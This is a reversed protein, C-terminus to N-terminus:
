TLKVLGIGNMIKNRIDERLSADNLAREIAFYLDTTTLLCFGKRQALEMAGDTYPKEKKDPEMRRYHNVVFIGKLEPQKDVNIDYYDLLERMDDRDAHTKLGKVEIIGTFRGDHIYIDPETGKGSIRVEFGLIRFAEAVAKCLDRDNGYLLKELVNITKLKALIKRKEKYQYKNVWDPKRSIWFELWKTLFSEKNKFQPLCIIEGDGLKISFAIVEEFGTTAIIEVNPIDKVNRFYCEVSINDRQSGLFRELSSKKIKLGHAENAAIKIKSLLQRPLWAYSKYGGYNKPKCCLCVLIGGYRIFESFEDRAKVAIRVTKSNVSSNDVIVMDYWSLPTLYEWTTKEIKVDLGELDEQIEEMGILLVRYTM